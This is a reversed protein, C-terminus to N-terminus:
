STALLSFDGLYFQLSTSDKFIKTLKIPVRKTLIKARTTMEVEKTWDITM